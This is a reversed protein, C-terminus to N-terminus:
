DHWLVDPEGPLPLEALVRGSRSDLTVLVGADAACLLRPGDLALGHPGAAPVDIAREIRLAAPDIVVIQAPERINAYVADSARDAGTHAVYLRQSRLHVDAHDFGPAAGRPLPIHRREVFTM